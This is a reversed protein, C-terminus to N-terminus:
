FPGAHINYVDFLDIFDDNYSATVNNNVTDETAVNIFGAGGSFRLAVAPSPSATLGTILFGQFNNYDAKLEISGSVDEDDYDTKVDAGVGDSGFFGNLRWEANPGVRYNVALAASRIYPSTSVSNILALTDNEIVRSLGQAALVLTDWYTIKGMFLFGGRGNIPISLNLSAASSGIAAEIETETPSPSRSTVELLGSTTQGYRASFVGHSLRASSVMKPDFISIGGMWHYPRELYFGDLAAVLDDPDGGRISPMANFMGSYGVGPLLKVSNMVDEIIGIEATRTLESESIAVSRGSRTESTDPRPAEIVLERNTMIGGLRLAASFFDGAPPILLRLPEYGPYSVTVISQGDPVTVRARGDPGCFFQEGTRLTVAAGELPLHLDEDEVYVQVERAFLASSVLLLLLTLRRSLM